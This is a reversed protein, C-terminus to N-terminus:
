DGADIQELMREIYRWGNLIMRLDRLDAPSAPKASAAFRARFEEICEARRGRAWGEFEAVKVSDEKAQAEELGERIELIEMLFGPPLADNRGTRPEGCAVLLAAARREPDELAEKARNLAALQEAADPSSGPRDPHLLASRRLWERRLAPLDLDFVPMLGFHAFPDDPASASMARM